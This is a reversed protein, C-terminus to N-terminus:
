SLNLSSVRPLHPYGVRVRCGRPRVAIPRDGQLKAYQHPLYWVGVLVIGRPSVVLREGAVVLVGWTVGSGVYIWRSTAM